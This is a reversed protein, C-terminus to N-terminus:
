KKTRYDHATVEQVEVLVLEGGDRTEYFARWQRNLRISRQGERRGKLPEDHYGQIKRVEPLGDAEVAQVWTLLKRVVPKPLRRLDKVVLALGVRYNM